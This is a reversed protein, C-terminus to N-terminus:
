KLPRHKIKCMPLAEQLKAVKEDAIKGLVLLELNTLGELPTLDTINSNDQLFLNELNTLGSLPQLDTIKGNFSLGLWELNKLESLPTLDSIPNTAANFKKLSTLGALPTLDSIRNRDLQLEELKTMGALPTVDTIFNKELNLVVLNTLGALPSLDNIKNDDLYLKELNTLKALPALDSIVPTPGINSSLMSFKTVKALDEPTLEGSRKGAAKRIKSEIFAAVEPRNPAVKPPQSPDPQEIENFDVTGHEALEIGDCTITTKNTGNGDFYIREDISIDHGDIQEDFLRFQHHGSQYESSVPKMNDYLATIVEGSKLHIQYGRHTSTPQGQIEGREMVEQYYNDPAAVGCGSLLALSLTSFLVCAPM